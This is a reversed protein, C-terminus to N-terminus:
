PESVGERSPERGEAEQAERSRSPQPWPAQFAKSQLAKDKFNPVMDSVLKPQAHPLAERDVLITSSPVLIPLNLGCTHGAFCRVACDYRCARTPLPFFVEECSFRRVTARRSASAFECM